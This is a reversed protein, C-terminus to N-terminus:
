HAIQWVSIGFSWSCIDTSTDPSIQTPAVRSQAKIIRNVLCNREKSHQIQSRFNVFSDKLESLSVSVSTTATFTSKHSWAQPLQVTSVHDKFYKLRDKYKKRAQHMRVM